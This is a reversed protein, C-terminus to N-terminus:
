YYYLLEAQEEGLKLRYYETRVRLYGDRWGISEERSWENYEAKFYLFGDKYYLEEFKGNNCRLIYLYGDM